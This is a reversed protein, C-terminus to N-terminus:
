SPDEQLYVLNQTLGRTKMPLTQYNLTRGPPLYLQVLITRRPISHNIRRALPFENFVRNIRLTQLYVLNQKKNNIQTIKTRLM